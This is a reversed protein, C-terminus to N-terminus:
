KTNLIITNSPYTITSKLISIRNHIFNCKYLISDFQKPNCLHGIFWRKSKNQISQKIGM